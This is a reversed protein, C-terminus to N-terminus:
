PRGVILELSCGLLAFGAVLLIGACTEFTAQHLPYRRAIYAVTAGVLISIAGFAAM